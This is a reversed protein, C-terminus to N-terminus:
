REHIEFGRRKSAALLMVGADITFAALALLVLTSGGTFPLQGQPTPTAVTTTTTGLPGVGGNTTTTTNVVQNPQAALAVVAPASTAACDFTAVITLNAAAITIKSVVLVSKESFIVPDSANKPTWTTDAVPLTASLPKAIGLPHDANGPQTVVVTANTKLKYTHSGQTTGSGTLVFTVDSPVKTGNSIVGLDVGTQLLGAPIALTLSTGTLKITKGLHPQSHGTLTVTM